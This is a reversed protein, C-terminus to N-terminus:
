ESTIMHMTVCLTFLQLSFIVEAGILNQAAFCLIFIRLPAIRNVVPPELSEFLLGGHTVSLYGHLAAGSGTSSAPITTLQAM